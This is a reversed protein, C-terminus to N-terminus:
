GGYPLEVVHVESGVVGVRDSDFGIEPPQLVATDCFQIVSLQCRGGAVIFWHLKPTCRCSVRRVPRSTCYRPECEYWRSRLKKLLVGYKGPGPAILGRRGFWNNPCIRVM